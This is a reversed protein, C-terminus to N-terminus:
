AHFFEDVTNTKLGFDAAVRRLAAGMRVKEPGGHGYSLWNDADDHVRQLAQVLGSHPKLREPLHGDYILSGVGGTILRGHRDIVEEDSLLLGVFCAGGQGDRYACVGTQYDRSQRKLQSGREVVIDFIGQAIALLPTTM